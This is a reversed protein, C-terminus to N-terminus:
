RSHGQIHVHWGMEGMSLDHDRISLLGTFLMGSHHSIHLYICPCLFGSSCNVKSDRFDKLFVLSLRKLHLGTKRTLMRLGRDFRTEGQSPVKESPGPYSATETQGNGTWSERVGSRLITMSWFPSYNGAPKKDEFQGLEMMFYDWPRLKGMMCVWHGLIANWFKSHCHFNEEFERM